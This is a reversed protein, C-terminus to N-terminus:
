ERGEVQSSFDHVYARQVDTMVRRPDALLAAFSEGVVGRVLEAFRDPWVTRDGALFGDLTRAAVDDPSAKAMTLPTSMETDIFGPLSLTVTAGTGALEDRVGLAMMLAAAKSSSYGPSSRSLAVSAVSLVFVVGADPRRLQAGFAQVLRVPGFFNVEMAERIASVDGGVIPGFCSIGANSVLVDVDAHELAAAAIEDAKTVDLRVPIVRGPDSYKPLSGLERAAAYVLAADRTLAAEVLSRGLGRNAGTVLVRRGTLDATL